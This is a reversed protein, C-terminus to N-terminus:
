LDYQDEIALITPTLWSMAMFLIMKFAYGVVKKFSHDFKYAKKFQPIMVIMAAICGILYFILGISM